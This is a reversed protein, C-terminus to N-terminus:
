RPGASRDRTNQSDDSIAQYTLVSARARRPDLDRVLDSVPSASLRYDLRLSLNGLLERLQRSRSGSPRLRADSDQAKRRRIQRATIWWGPLWCDSANGAVYEAMSRALVGRIEADLGFALAWALAEEPSSRRALAAGSGVENMSRARQLLTAMELAQAQLRTQMAVGRRTRAPLTRVVVVTGTAALLWTPGTLLIVFSPALLGITLGFAALVFEVVAVTYWAERVGHWKDKLWGHAVASAELELEFRGFTGDLLYLSEPGIAGGTHTSVRRIGAFLECEARALGLHPRISEKLVRVGTAHRALGSTEELCILDHGALEVLAASVSRRSPRRKLILTAMAPSMAVPPTTRQAPREDFSGDDRDDHDRRRFTERLAVLGFASVLLMGVISAVVLCVSLVNSLTSALWSLM